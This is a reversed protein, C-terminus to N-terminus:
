RKWTIQLSDTGLSWAIFVFGIFFISFLHVISLSQILYHKYSEYYVMYIFIHGCLVLALADMLM